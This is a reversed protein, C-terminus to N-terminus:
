TDTIISGDPNIDIIIVKFIVVKGTDDIICKTNNNYLYSTIVVCRELNLASCRYLLLLLIEVTECTM